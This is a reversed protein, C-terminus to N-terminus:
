QKTIKGFKGFIIFEDTSSIKLTRNNVISIKANASINGIKATSSDKSLTAAAGATLDKALKVEASFGKIIIATKMIENDPNLILNKLSKKRDTPNHDLSNMLRETFISKKRFNSVAFNIEKSNKIGATVEMNLGDDTSNVDIDGGAVASLDFKGNMVYSCPSFKGTDTVFRLEDESLVTKDVMDFINDRKSDTITGLGLTNGIGLYDADKSSIFVSSMCNVLIKGWYKAAYGKVNKASFASTDKDQATTDPYPILVDTTVYTTDSKPIEVPNDSKSKSKCAILLVTFAVTGTIFHKVRM